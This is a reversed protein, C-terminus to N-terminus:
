RVRHEIARDGPHPPQKEILITNLCPTNALSTHPEQKLRPCIRKV